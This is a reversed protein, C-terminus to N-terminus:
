AGYQKRHKQYLEVHVVVAWQMCNVKQESLANTPFRGTFLQGGSYTYSLINPLHNHNLTLADSLEYATLWIEGPSLYISDYTKNDVTHEVNHSVAATHAIQLRNEKKKEGLLIHLHM